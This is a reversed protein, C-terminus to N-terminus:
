SLSQFYIYNIKIEFSLYCYTIILTFITSHSLYNFATENSIFFLILCGDCILVTYHITRGKLLKLFNNYINNNILFSRPCCSLLCQSWSCVVVHMMQSYM